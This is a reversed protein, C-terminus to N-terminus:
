VQTRRGKVRIRKRYTLIIYVIWIYISFRISSGIVNISSRAFFIQRSLMGVFICPLMLEGDKIKRISLLEAYSIAIGYVFMFVWGYKGYNLYAEAICSYGAEAETLISRNTAWASLDGIEAPATFGIANLIPLPIVGRILYYIITQYHEMGKEIEKLTILMPYESIGYEFLSRKLNYMIGQELVSDVTIQGIAASRIVSIVSMAVNFAIFGVIYYPIYKKKFWEPHFMRAAFVLIGIFIIAKSRTGAAMYLVILLIWLVYFLKEQFKNHNLTNKCVYYIGLIRCAFNLYASSGERTEYLTMYSMSQRSVVAYLAIAINYAVSIYFLIDFILDYETRKYRDPLVNDSFMTDKVGYKKTYLYTGIATGLNIGAVCIFQFLVAKNILDISNNEYVSFLMFTDDILFHSVSQGLNSLFMYGYFVIYISVLRNKMKIWSVIGIIYQVATLLVITSNFEKTRLLMVNDWNLNFYILSCVLILASLMMCNYVSRKKKYYEKLDM